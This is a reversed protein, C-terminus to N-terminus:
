ARTDQRVPIARLGTLISARLVPATKAPAEDLLAVLRERAADLKGSRFDIKALRVGVEASQQEEASAQAILARASDPDDALVAADIRKLLVADSGAEATTDAPNRGLAVLLKDAAARAAAAVDRASAEVAYRQGAGDDAGLS